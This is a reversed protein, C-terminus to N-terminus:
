KEQIKAQLMRQRLVEYMVVAGAVSVNLSGVSGRMPISARDDCKNLVGARIGKGEGGLVLGVPGTLDLATYSKSAGPDVAYVWLGETQLTEILRSVNPTRAVLIHELAGASAKAVTGTLGAARREPLIVGHVGTAEATRIVAGLNHPDEVGDLILLFPPEGRARAAALIDAPEAYSKAAVLGIVGQHRGGPVLRDLAQKPEVHVPVRTARALRVLDAFQRDQRLLLIRLLPRTGARLAERVAHLGYIIERRDDSGGAPAM